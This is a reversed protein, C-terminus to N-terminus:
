KRCGRAYGSREGAIGSDTRGAEFVRRGPRCIPDAVRGACIRPESSQRQGGAFMRTITSKIYFPRGPFDETEM